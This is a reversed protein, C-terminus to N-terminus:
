DFVVKKGAFAAMANKEKQKKKAEWSPHVPGDDKPPPARNPQGSPYGGARRESRNLPRGSDGGYGGGYGGSHGRGASGATGTAGRKMDWGNDRNHRQNKQEAQVHNAKEGYKKEWLARRAQQGMRNKRPAPAAEKEDDTAEESGSWYGGMMLSPLFTTNQSQAASLASAKTKKPPPSSKEEEDEEEEEAESYDPSPSRSVSDSIDAPDFGKTKMEDDEDESDEAESGSGPALRSDFQSFDEDGSENGDSVNLDAGQRPGDGSESESVSVAKDQRKPKEVNEKTPANKKAGAKDQKGAPLDDVGILKRIEAILNPVVNKVPTAKFLRGLINSEAASKPGDTSINKGEQFELFIPSEAIRKTKSLQKYLYKDAIAQYDLKKLAQVEEGLRELTTSDYPSRAAKERRSLKQREFGRATKLGKIIIQVSQDFKNTLRVAIMSMKRPKAIGSGESGNLDSLKRKPM